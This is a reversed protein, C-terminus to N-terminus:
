DELVGDILFRSM